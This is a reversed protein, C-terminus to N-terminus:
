VYTPCLSDFVANGTGLIPRFFLVFIPFRAPPTEISRDLSVVDAAM